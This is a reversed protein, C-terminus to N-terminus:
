SRNRGGAARRRRGRAPAAAPRALWEDAAVSPVHVADGVPGDGEDDGGRRVEGALLVLLLELALADRGRVELVELHQGVHEGLAHAGELGASADGDVDGVEAALGVAAQRGVHDADELVVEAQQQAALQDPLLALAGGARACPSREAARGVRHEAVDALSHDDGALAAEIAGPRRLLPGGVPQRVLARQHGVVEQRHREVDPRDCRLARRRTPWGAGNGTSSGSCSIRRYVNRSSRTRSGNMPLPEVSTAAARRPRRYM